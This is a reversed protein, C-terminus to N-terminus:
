GPFEYNEHTMDLIAKYGCKKCHVRVFRKSPDLEIENVHMFHGKRNMALCTELQHFVFSLNDGPYSGNSKQKLSKYISSAPQLIKM